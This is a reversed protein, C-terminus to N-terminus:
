DDALEAIRTTIREVDGPLLTLMNLTYVGRWICGVVPPNGQRMLEDLRNAELVPSSFTVLKADLHEEPLSGGGYYGAGDAIEFQWSPKVAQLKRILRKALRSQQGLDAAIFERMVLETHEVRRHLHEVLTAGLGAVTFKDIRVVRWLPNRRLKLVLDRRGLVIGAQPGGFLKDGSFTVLDPGAALTGIVDPESLAKGEEPAIYGSGLDVIVPVAHKRALAVLDTLETEETFGVIRYNSTHTKLILATSDTIAREYDTLRTRNTTGVEVLQCGSARVVDPVRYSGGIEVLESRSTLVERGEALSKLALFVGGANNNVVTAAECGTLAKLLPELTVDRRTRAGQQLDFELNSYAASVAAIAQQARKGLVARGLNTHLAIGTANVVPKLLPQALESLKVAVAMAVEEASPVTDRKGSTVQERLSAIEAQVLRKVVDRRYVTALANMPETSLVADVQPLKRLEAQLEAKGRTM